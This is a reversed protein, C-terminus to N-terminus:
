VDNNIHANLIVESFLIFFDMNEPLINYLAM